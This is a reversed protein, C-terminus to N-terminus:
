PMLCAYVAATWLSVRYHFRGRRNRSRGTGFHRAHWFLPPLSDPFQNKVM